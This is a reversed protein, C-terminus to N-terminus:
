IEDLEVKLRNIAMGVNKTDYMNWIIRKMENIVNAPDNEYFEDMCGETVVIQTNINFIKM